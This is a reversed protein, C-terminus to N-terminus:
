IVFGRGAWFAVKGGGMEITCGEDREIQGTVVVKDKSIQKKLITRKDQPSRVHGCDRGICTNLQSNRESRSVQLVPILLDHQNSNVCNPRSCTNLHYGQNGNLPVIPSCNDQINFRDQVDSPGNKGATRDM